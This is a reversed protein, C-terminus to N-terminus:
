ELVAPRSVPPKARGPLFFRITRRLLIPLFKRPYKYLLALGGGLAAFWRGGRVDRGLQDLRPGCDEREWALRRGEWLARLLAPDSRVFALQRDLALLNGALMGRHNGSMNAGHVRYEAILEQHSWTPYRRAVRLYMEYDESHHQDAAFGGLEDLVARRFMVTVPPGVINQRLLLDYRAPGEVILPTSPLPNGEADIRRRRGWVFGCDPRERFARVGAALANPLLRDDADLCVVFDGSCEALGRNRARSLGRNEQAFFRVTPFRDVVERVNDPSGDDIVIIEYDRHTQALVSEIADSLFHAQAFCPIVVSVQPM